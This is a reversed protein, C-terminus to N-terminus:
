AGDFIKPERVVNVFEHGDVFAQAVGGLGFLIALDVIFQVAVREVHIRHGAAPTETTQTTAASPLLLGVAVVSVFLLPKSLFIFLM